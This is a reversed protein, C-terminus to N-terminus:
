VRQVVGVGPAVHGHDEAIGGTRRDDRRRGFAGIPSHQGMGQVGVTSEGIPEAETEEVDRPNRDGVALVQLRVLVVPGVHFPAVNEFLRDPAHGLHDALHQGLGAVADLVDVEQHGM